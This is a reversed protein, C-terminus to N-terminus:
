FIESEPSVATWSRRLRRPLTSASIAWRSAATIVGSWMGLRELRKRENGYNILTVSSTGGKAAFAADEAELQRAIMKDILVILPYKRDKFLDAHAEPSRRLRKVMPALLFAEREETPREGFADLMDTIIEAQDASKLELETIAQLVQIFRIIVWVLCGILATVVAIGTFGVSMSKDSNMIVMAPRFCAVMVLSTVILSTFLAVLKNNIDTM